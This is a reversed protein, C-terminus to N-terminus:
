GQPILAPNEYVNGIVEVNLLQYRFGRGSVLTQITTDSLNISFGSAFHWDHATHLDQEWDVIAADDQDGRVIDGECIEKGNCDLIGTFQMVELKSVDDQQAHSSYDLHIYVSLSVIDENDFEISKVPYM